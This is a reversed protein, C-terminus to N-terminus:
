DEEQRYITVNVPRVALAKIIELAGRMDDVQQKMQVLLPDEQREELQEKVAYAQAKVENAILADVRSLVTNFRTDHHAQKQLITDLTRQVAELESVANEARKEGAVNDVRESKGQKRAM